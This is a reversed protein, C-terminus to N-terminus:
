IQRLFEATVSITDGSTNLWFGDVIGAVARYSKVIASVPHGRLTTLGAWLPQGARIQQKAGQVLSRYATANLQLGQAQCEFVDALAAAAPIGCALYAADTALGTSKANCDAGAVRMLDRAPTAIVQQGRAHAVQVFATMFAKPHQKEIPPTSNWREPDYLVWQTTPSAVVYDRFARFGTVPTTDWGPPPNGALVYSEPTNFYQSALAPDLDNLAALPNAGIMWSTM